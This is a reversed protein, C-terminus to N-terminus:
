AHSSELAEVLASLTRDFLAERPLDSSFGAANKHGGGGFRDAVRQVDPGGRSRFSVKFTGDALQRFLAVAEVGAISRPYDILGESDGARAGSRRSMERTLVATAIRGGAHLELTQLMEGLLRLMPEPQSEYLWHSVTQPQAGHRVLEAAAEFAEATTNSYRFGGTDTVLTLYLANATDRDLELDLARAFRFVMAGVAPAATDVWNSEGYGENGLHHDINILPLAALPGDLGTREPHTCELVIAADFSEPFGDPPTQGVHIGDSGALPRYIRPAPDHNWITAEKGMQGLLRALGIESGVADGDPNLHSTLLFRGGRRLSEILERPPGSPPTRSRPVPREPLNPTAM